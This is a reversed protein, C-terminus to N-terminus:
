FCIYDPRARIHLDNGSSASTTYRVTVRQFLILVPQLERELGDRSIQNKHKRPNNRESKVHCRRFSGTIWNTKCFGSAPAFAISLCRTNRLREADEADVNHKVRRSLPARSYISLDFSKLAPVDCGFTERASTLTM